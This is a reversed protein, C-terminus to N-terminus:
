PSESRYPDVLETSTATYHFTGFNGIGPISGDPIAITVTAYSTAVLDSSQIQNGFM